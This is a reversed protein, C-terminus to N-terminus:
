LLLRGLGQIERDGLRHTDSLLEIFADVNLSLSRDAQDGVQTRIGDTNRILRIRIRSRIDCLIIPFFEYRCLSNGLLTAGLDLVRMLRDARGVNRSCRRHDLFRKGSVLEAEVLQDPLTKGCASHSRRYILRRVHLDTGSLIAETDCCGLDGKLSKHRHVRGLVVLLVRVINQQFSDILVRLKRQIGKILLLMKCLRRCMIRLRGQNLRQLLQSNSTRTGVRRRDRRQKASTVNDLFRLIQIHRLQSLHDVLNHLFRERADHILMKGGIHFRQEVADSLSRHVPLRNHPIKIRIQFSRHFHRLFFQLFYLDLVLDCINDAVLASSVHHYFVSRM